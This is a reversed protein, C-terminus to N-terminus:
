EATNQWEKFEPSNPDLQDIQQDIKKGSTSCVNLRASKLFNAFYVWWSQTFVWLSTFRETPNTELRLRTWMEFKSTLTRFEEPDGGKDPHCLLALNKFRTRAEAETCKSDLGLEKSLAEHNQIKLKCSSDDRLLSTIAFAVVSFAIAPAIVLACSAALGGGAVVGAAALASTAASSAAAGFSISVLSTATRGIAQEKTIEGKDFAIITRGLEIGTSVTQIIMGAEAVKAATLGVQLGAQGVDIAVDVVKAETSKQEALKKEEETQPLVYKLGTAVLAIGVAGVAGGKISRTTGAVAGVTGLATSEVTQIGLCGVDHTSINKGTVAKLALTTAGGALTGLGRSAGASLHTEELKEDYVKILENTENSTKYEEKKRTTTEVFFGTDSIDQEITQELMKTKEAASSKGNTSEIISHKTTETRSVVNALLGAHHLSTEQDHIMVTETGTATHTEVIDIKASSLQERQVVRQHIGTIETHSCITREPPPACFVSLLSSASIPLPNLIITIPATDRQQLPIFFEKGDKTKSTMSTYRTDIINTKEHLSWNTQSETSGIAYTNQLVDDASPPDGLGESHLWHEAGELVRANFSGSANKQTSIEVISPIGQYYGDQIGTTQVTGELQFDGHANTCTKVDYNRTALNMESVQQTHELRTTAMAVGKIGDIEIAQISTSCLSDKGEAPRKFIDKKDRHFWLKDVCTGVSSVAPVPLSIDSIPQDRIYSGDLVAVKIEEMKHGDKGIYHTIDHRHVEQFKGVKCQSATIKRTEMSNQSKTNECPHTILEERRRTVQQLDKEERFIHMNSNLRQFQRQDLHSGNAATDIEVNTVTTGHATITSCEGASFHQSEHKTSTGIWGRQESTKSRLDDFDQFTETTTLTTSSIHIPKDVNDSCTVTACQLKGKERCCTEKSRGKLGWLSRSKTETQVTANVQRHRGLKPQIQKMEDAITELHLPSPPSDAPPLAPSPPPFPLATLDDTESVFSSLSILPTGDINSTTRTTTTILNSAPAELLMMRDGLKLDCRLSGSFSKEYQEQVQQGPIDKNFITRVSSQESGGYIGIGLSAAHTVSGHAGMGTSDRNVRFGQRDTYQMSETDHHIGLKIFPVAGVPSVDLNHRKSTAHIDKFGTLNGGMSGRTITNSNSYSVPVVNELPCGVATATLDLMTTAVSSIASHVAVDVATDVAADAGDNILALGVNLTGIPAGIQSLVSTGWTEAAIKGANEMGKKVTELCERYTTPKGEPTSAVISIFDGLISGGGAVLGAKTHHSLGTSVKTEGQTTENTQLDRTESSKTTTAWLLGDHVKVIETTQKQMQQAQTVSWALGPHIEQMPSPLLTSVPITVASEKSPLAIGVRHIQETGSTQTTKTETIRHLRGRELRTSKDLQIVQVNNLEQEEIKVPLPPTTTSQGDDATFRLTRKGTGEREERRSENQQWSTHEFSEEVTVLLGDNDKKHQRGFAGQENRKGSVKSSTKKTAAPYRLERTYHGFTSKSETQLSPKENKGAEGRTYDVLEISDCSERFTECHESLSAGSSFTLDSNSVQLPHIEGTVTDPIATRENRKWSMDESLTESRTIHGDVESQEFQGSSSKAQQTSTEVGDDTQVTEPKSVHLREFDGQIDARSHHVNNVYDISISDDVIRDHDTSQILGGDQTQSESMRQRLIGEDRRRIHRSASERTIEYKGTNCERDKWGVQSASTNPGDPATELSKKGASMTRDSVFQQELIKEAHMRLLWEDVNVEGTMEDSWVGDLKLPPIQIQVPPNTVSSSSSSPFSSSSSTNDFNLETHLIRKGMKTEHIPDSKNSSTCRTRMDVQEHLNVKISTNGDPSVLASKNPQVSKLASTLFSDSGILEVVQQKLNRISLPIPTSDLPQGDLMSQSITYKEVPRTFPIKWNKEVRHDGANASAHLVKSTTEPQVTTVVGLNPDISTTLALKKELTGVALRAGFTGGVGANVGYTTLVQDAKPESTRAVTRDGGAFAIKAFGVSVGRTERRGIDKGQQNGIKSVQPSILTSYMPLGTGATLALSVAADAAQGVDLNCVASVAAPLSPHVADLATNLMAHAVDSGIHSANPGGRRLLNGAVADAVALGMDVKDVKPLKLKGLIGRKESPGPIGVDYEPHVDIVIREMPSKVDLSFLTHEPHQVACESRWQDAPIISPSAPLGGHEHIGWEPTYHDSTVRKTAHQDATITSPNSCAPPNIVRPVQFTSPSPHIVTPLQFTSSQVSSSGSPLLNSVKTDHLMVKSPPSQSSPISQSSAVPPSSPPFSFSTYGANRRKISPQTSKTQQPESPPHDADAVNVIRAGVNQIKIRGLKDLNNRPKPYGGEWHLLKPHSSGVDLQATILVTKGNSNKFTFQPGWWIKDKIRWNKKVNSPQQSRPVDM